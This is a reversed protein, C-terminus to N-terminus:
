FWRLPAKKNKVYTKIINIRNGVKKFMFFRSAAFDADRNKM